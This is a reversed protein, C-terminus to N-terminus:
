SLVIRNRRGTKKGDTAELIKSAAAGMWEDGVSVQDDPDVVGM